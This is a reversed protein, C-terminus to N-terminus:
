QFEAKSRDESSEDDAGAVKKRAAKREEIKANVEDITEKLLAAPAYCSYLFNYVGSQTGLIVCLPLNACLFQSLLIWCAM